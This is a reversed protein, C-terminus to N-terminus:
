TGPAALAPRPRLRNRMFGGERGRRVATVEALIALATEEVSRGGLDLGVPGYIRALQDEPFGQERLRDFRQRQTNRSGIAGIYPVPSPLVHALTPEDFKPDHSLLVVYTNENLHLQPFVDQPWGKIVSDAAPFRDELAFAGRADTVIVRYGLDKAFRSLPIATHTAGVIILQAPAPFVDIFVDVDGGPLEYLVTDPAEERLLRMADGAVQSSLEPTGIGGDMSGNPYVLMKSGLGEGAVVTALAVPSEGAIHQRLTEYLSM